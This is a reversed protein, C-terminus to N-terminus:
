CHQFFQANPVCRLYENGLYIDEWQVLADHAANIFQIYVLTVENARFRVYEKGTQDAGFKFLRFVRGGREFRGIQRM